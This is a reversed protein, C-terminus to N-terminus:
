QLSRRFRGGKGEGVGCANRTKGMAWCTKQVNPQIAGRGGKDKRRPPLPLRRSHNRAHQHMECSRVMKRDAPGDRLQHHIGRVTRHIDRPTYWRDERIDPLRVPGQRVQLVHNVAFSASTNPQPINIVVIIVATAIITTVQHNPVQRERHWKM